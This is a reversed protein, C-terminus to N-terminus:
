SGALMLSMSHACFVLVIIATTVSTHPDALGDAVGHGLSDLWPKRARYLM